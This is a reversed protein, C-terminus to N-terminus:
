ANLLTNYLNPNKKYLATREKYSMKKFDEASISKGSKTSSIIQPIEANKFLFPYKEKFINLQEELNEIEGNENKLNETDLLKLVVDIDHPALKEISNKLLEQFKLENNIENDKELIAMIVNEDLELEKLFEESIM